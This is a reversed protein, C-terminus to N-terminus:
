RNDSFLIFKGFFFFFIYNLLKIVKRRTLNFERNCGKCNTVLRDNAWTPTGNTGENNAAQYQANDVAERLECAALKAVSLQGGLEELTHEQETCIERLAYHEEQLSM